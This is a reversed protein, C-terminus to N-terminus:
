CQAAAEPRRLAESVLRALEDAHHSFLDGTDRCAISHDALGTPFYTKWFRRRAQSPGSARESSRVYLAAGGYPRPSYRRSATHNAAAVRKKALENRTEPPLRGRKITALIRLSKSRVYALRQGRRQVLERAFDRVRDVVFQAGVGLKRKSRGTGTDPLPTDVLCLLGVEAGDARLRQAMELAVLGGFCAGLLHYPGEPRVRRVESLFSKAMDEISDLPKEARDLGPFKWCYIPRDRDLHRAMPEMGLVELGPIIFLPPKSGASRIKVIASGAGIEASAFVEALLAVRPRDFLLSIPLRRGTVTEIALFLTEAALSDGGLQFFDDDVGVVDLDLAEAMLRTLLHEIDTAPPRFPVSIELTARQM